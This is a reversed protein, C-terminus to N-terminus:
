KLFQSLKEYMAKTDIPKAIHGNMGVGLAKSVDEDYANASMALIPIDKADPHDSKRIMSAAEFGDMEPMQIDMLIVDYYGASSKLFMDLAQKGDAAVETTLGSMSLLATAIEANMGNDEALLCRRGSFDYTKENKDEKASKEDYGVPIDVVFETGKGKESNVTVAGHMMDVLSKVISLGLGSGGHNKATLASEQEFPKFLREKMQQDMGEGTDRVSIGVFLQGGNQEQSVTLTISGGSPTFKLANSILNLMIQNFRLEDGVVTDYRIGDTNVILEVDKQRCQPSYITEVRETLSMLDFPESAIKLKENEIASMDLVDNIIGLLLKSSSDIKELTEDTKQKDDTHQRAIETLGIVANLPTRIEHSMRSLFRGKAASANEAHTYAEALQLKKQNSVSVIVMIVLVSMLVLLGIVIITMVISNRKVSATITDIYDQTVSKVLVWGNISIPSYFAHRESKGSTFKCYGKTGSVIESITRFAKQKDTEVSEAFDFLNNSEDILRKDSHSLLIIDGDTSFICSYSESELDDSEVIKLLDDPSYLGHLTGKTKGEFVIPCSFVLMGNDAGKGDKCLTLNEEGSVTKKFYECQSVDIESGDSMVGKGDTDSVILGIFPSNSLVYRMEKLQHDSKLEPEENFQETEASIFSQAYELAKRASYADSDAYESLLEYNSTVIRNTTKDIYTKMVVAATIIMVVAAAALLIIKKTLHQKYQMPSM